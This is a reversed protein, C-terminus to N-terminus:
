IGCQMSVVQGYGYIVMLLMPLHTGEARRHHQARPRLALARLQEAQLRRAHVVAVPAARRALRALGGLGLDLLELGLVHAAPLEELLGGLDDVLDTVSLLNLLQCPWPSWPIAFTTLSTVHIKYYLDTGFAFLPSPGFFRFIQFLRLWYM